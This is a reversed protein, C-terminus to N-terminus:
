EIASLCCELYEDPNEFVSYVLDVFTRIHPQKLAQPRTVLFVQMSPLLIDTFVETLNDQAMIRPLSAVGFGRCVTEFQSRFSSMRIRANTFGAEKAVRKHPIQDMPPLLDLYDVIDPSMKNANHKLYAPSTFFGFSIEAVKKYVLSTEGRNQTRIAVDVDGRAVDDLDSNISYDVSCCPNDTSFKIIATTLVESFGEGSSLTVTGTHGTSKRSIVLQRDLEGSMSKAIEAFERGKATLRCGEM